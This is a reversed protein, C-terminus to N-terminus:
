GPQQYLYATPKSHTKPSSNVSLAFAVQQAALHSPATLHMFLHTRTNTHTACKILLSHTPQKFDWYADACSPSTPPYIVALSVTERQSM